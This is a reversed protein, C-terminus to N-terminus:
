ATVSATEPKPTPETSESARKRSRKSGYAMKYQTSSKGYVTAVGSLLRNSLDTLSKELDGFASGNQDVISLAKNYEELAQRAAEIKANFAAVSIGSGLDLQPDITEIAAMRSQANEIAQSTRKRRPM